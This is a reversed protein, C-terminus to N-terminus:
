PLLESLVHDMETETIANIRTYRIIGESDIFFTVPINFIGFAQQAVRENDLAIPYTVAYRQIFRRIEQDKDQDTLNIGVVAIKDGYREATRVLAPMEEKCPECWSAWFNIILPKGRYEAPNFSDGDVTKLVMAPVPRDIGVVTQPKNSNGSTLIAVTAIVIIAVIIGAGLWLWEKRSLGQKVPAEPESTM